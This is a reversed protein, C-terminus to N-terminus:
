RFASGAGLFNYGPRFTGYGPLGGSLYQGPARTFLSAVPNTPAQPRPQQLRQAMMQQYANPMGGSLLGAGTMGKNDYDGPGNVMGRYGTFNPGYGAVM